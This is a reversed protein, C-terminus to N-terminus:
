LSGMIAAYIKLNTDNDYHLGDVLKFGATQLYSHTDIYKVGVLSGVMTANFSQVSEETTYPNEWVPNVSVFYTRAGRAAWAAAYANVMAAYQAAHGTDNVGMCIVVKSGKGVVADARPIATQEFWDYQKGNECIWTCGGGAVSECMQVCRSDGIMIVGAPAAVNPTIPAVNEQMAASQNADNQAVADQTAPQTSANNDTKKVEEAKSMEMTNDAESVGRSVTEAMSESETESTMSEEETMTTVTESEAQMNDQTDTEIVTTEESSTESEIPVSNKGCAVITCMAMTLVLACVFLKRKM